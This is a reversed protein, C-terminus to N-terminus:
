NSPRKRMHLMHSKKEEGPKPYLVADPQNLKKSMFNPDTLLPSDKQFLEKTTNALEGAKKTVTDAIGKFGGAEQFTNVVTRGGEGIISAIGGLSDKVSTTNVNEKVTNYLPLVMQLLDNLKLNGIDSLGELHVRRASALVATSIVVLVWLRM